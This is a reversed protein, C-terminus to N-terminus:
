GAPRNPMDAPASPAPLVKTMHRLTFPIGGPLTFTFHEGAVFGHREYFRVGTLTAGLALRSFGADIASAESRLLLSTGIGSRAHNPDVYYARIHAPDRRPDARAEDRGGTADGGFLVSRFSWGGAGVIRGDHEVIYYTGDDIIQRDVGFLPGVSARLAAVDYDPAMLGIVARDILAEIAGIDDPCAPRLEM